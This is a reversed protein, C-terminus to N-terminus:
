RRTQGSRRTTDRRTGSPGPPPPGARSRCQWRRRRRPPPSRPSARPNRARTLLGLIERRRTRISRHARAPLAITFLRRGEARCALNQPIEGVHERHKLERPECFAREILGLIQVLLSSGRGLSYTVDTREAYRCATTKVCSPHSRPSQVLEDGKAVPVELVVPSESGVIRETLRVDREATKQLSIPFARDFRSSHAEIDSDLPAGCPVKRRTLAYAPPRSRRERKSCFRPRRGTPPRTLARPRQAKATRAM